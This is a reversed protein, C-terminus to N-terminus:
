EYLKPSKFIGSVIIWSGLVFGILAHPFSGASVLVYIATLFILCGTILAIAKSFKNKTKPYFVYTRKGGEYQVHSYLDFFLYLILIGFSIYTLTPNKILSIGLYVLGFVIM